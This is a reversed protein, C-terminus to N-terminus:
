EDSDFSATLLAFLPLWAPLASPAAKSACGLSAIAAAFITDLLIVAILAGSAIRSGLLM